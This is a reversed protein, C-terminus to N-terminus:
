RRRHLRLQPMVILKKKANEIASEYGADAHRVIGMGPDVTLVCKVREDTEASGDCIVIMGAHTSLGIGVGGGNHIAVLDAGAATNLLANLLPWDAVADTGDKMGETERYPSAVSGADLHDRTIAVPGALEGDRVMRNIELGFRAREGYGLWCVRAPLGEFPVKERALEIWNTLIKNDPFLRLVAEETKHIDEKKGSLAVWRFPGRGECFLPRIYLKVFGDFSFAAEKALGGRINNGYDFVIAGSEKFQLMAKLHKVISERARQIYKTPDSKRLAAAEDVSSGEPIYGKLPDHASTQDTVVDPRFGKEFLEHHVTACNGLLAISRAEGGKKAEAAIRMAEEVSDTTSDVWKRSLRKEIRAPDVEVAVCVGGNM